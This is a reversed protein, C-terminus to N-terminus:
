QCSATFCLNKSFFPMVHNQFRDAVASTHTGPYLEFSNAIGYKDLIEHLKATDTRLGDQDGVDISIAHYKRLDDIYQDIFALPANAAWRALVDPQAVGDKSPLDLYLPPNKPDPSWAAATALQAREFFSLKASDDITKVALLKNELEPNAPGAPRASMCCPSMIYLSGFVDAHKM